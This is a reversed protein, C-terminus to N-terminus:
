EDGGREVAVRYRRGDENFNVDEVTIPEPVDGPDAEALTEFVDSITKASHSLHPTVEQVRVTQKFEKTLFLGALYRTVSRRPTSSPPHPSQRSM